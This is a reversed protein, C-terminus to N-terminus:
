LVCARGTAAPVLERERRRQRRRRRVAGRRVAGRRTAGRGGCRAARKGYLFRRRSTETRRAATIPSRRMRRQREAYSILSFRVCYLVICVRLVTVAYAM